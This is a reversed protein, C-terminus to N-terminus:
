EGIEDLIIRAIHHPTCEPINPAPATLGKHDACFRIFRDITQADPAGEEFINLCLPYRRTYHLTPCNPLKHFNVMPKRSNIYELTKSPMHVPVSNGINILIDADAMANLAINYPQNPLTM